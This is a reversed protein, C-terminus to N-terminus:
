WLWPCVSDEDDGRAALHVGALPEQVLQCGPAVHQDFGGGILMVVDHADDLGEAVEGSKGETVEEAGSANGDEAREFEGAGNVAEFQGHDPAEEGLVGGQIGLDNEGRGLAQGEEFVIDLGKLLVEAQDLASVFGLEGGAEAVHRLPEPGEAFLGEALAGEDDLLQDM